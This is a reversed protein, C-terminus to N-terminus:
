IMCRTGLPLYLRNIRGIFAKNESAGWNTQVAPRLIKNYQLINMKLWQDPIAFDLQASSSQTSGLRCDEPQAAGNEPAIAESMAM